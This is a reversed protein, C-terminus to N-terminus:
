LRGNESHLKKLSVVVPLGVGRLVSWGFVILLLSLVILPVYFFRNLWCYYWDTILDPAYREITVQDHDQATGRLRLWIANIGRSLYDM